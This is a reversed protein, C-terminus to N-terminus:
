RGAAVCGQQRLFMTGLGLTLGLALSHIKLQIRGALDSLRQATPETRADQRHAASSLTGQVLRSSGAGSIVSKISLSM